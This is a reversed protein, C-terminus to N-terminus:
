GLKLNGDTRLSNSANRNQNTDTGIYIGGTASTTNSGVTLVGNAPSVSDGIALRMNVTDAVLLTDQDANQIQFVSSSDFGIGSRLIFDKTASTTTILAPSSSNNYADQLSQSVGASGCGLDTENCLVKWAGNEYVKFKNAEADYIIGGNVGSTLYDTDQVRDVVLLTYDGIASGTANGVYLRNNVTDAAFLTDSGSDQIQFVGTSDQSSGSRIVINKTSSSTEILAPTSSNDYAEQLDQSSGSAGCGADVTNCLIKWAGNEYVKFKHLTSDYVIGGNV